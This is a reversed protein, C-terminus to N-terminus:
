KIFYYLCVPLKNGGTIDAKHASHCSAPKEAIPQYGPKTDIAHQRYVTYAHGHSQQQRSSKGCMSVADIPNKNIPKPSEM